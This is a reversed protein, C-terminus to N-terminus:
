NGIKYNKEAKRMASRLNDQIDPPFKSICRRIFWATDKDFSLGINQQLFYATENPSRKVLIQLIEVIYSRLAIPASRVFPAILRFVQPLNQFGEFELVALILRLGYLNDVTQPNNLWTSACNIIRDSDKNILYELGYKFLAENITKDKVDFSWTRIRILVPDPDDVPIRGILRAALMKFEYHNDQWLADCLVLSEQYNKLYPSLELEITRLVPQPVKYVPLISAPIGTKGTRHVHRGYLHLLEHLMQIFNSPRDYYSALQSTQEKLRVPQIATM